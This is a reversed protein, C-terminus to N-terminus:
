FKEGIEVVIRVTTIVFNKADDIEDKEENKPKLLVYKGPCSEDNNVDPKQKQKSKKKSPKQDVEKDEDDSDRM